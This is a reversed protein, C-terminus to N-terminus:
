PPARNPLHRIQLRLSAIERRQLRQRDIADRLGGRLIATEARWMRDRALLKRIIANLAAIDDPLPDGIPWALPQLEIVTDGGRKEVVGSMVLLRRLGPVIFPRRLRKADAELRELTTLCRPWNVWLQLYRRAETYSLNLNRQAMAEFPARQHPYRKAIAYMLGGIERRALLAALSGRLLLGGVHRALEADIARDPLATYRDVDHRLAPLFNSQANM